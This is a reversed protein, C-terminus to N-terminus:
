WRRRVLIRRAILISLAGDFPYAPNSAEVDSSPTVVAPSFVGEVGKIVKGLDLVRLNGDWEGFRNGDPNAPGLADIHDAIAARGPETLVGGAYVLDGALPTASPASELVLQTSTVPLSEVAVSAGTGGVTAIVIRAGATITDPRAAALTLTRTTANWSAVVPPTQDVWDFEYRAAIPRVTVDVDVIQPQTDLVRIGKVSVPRKSVLYALLATREGSNLLRATSTGLHLGAVDVTGLGGRLPYIFARAIGPVQLAWQRYDEAAGGLPPQQLRSVLRASYAGDQEADEGDEDLALQLEATEAIGVIQEVFTLQEGAGLRTASGTDIAIVDVDIVEEAPMTGSENIEYRLGAASVLVAGSSFTSGITGSIRLANAKRAATAGKRPLALLVGWRDLGAGVARDPLLEDFEKGIQYQNDVAIGAQVGTLRWLLSGESNDDDPLLSSALDAGLQHLEDFTSPTFPM